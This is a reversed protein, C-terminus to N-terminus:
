LHVKPLAKAATWRMTWQGSVVPRDQVLGKLRIRYQGQIIVSYNDSAIKVVKLIRALTGVRYLEEESPEDTEADVQTLIAIPLETKVANEILKVSKARGVALPVVVQPFLVTNRLPLISYEVGRSEASQDQEQSM